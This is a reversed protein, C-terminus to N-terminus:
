ADERKVTANMAEAIARVNDRRQILDHHHGGLLAFSDDRGIRIGGLRKEWMAALRQEIPTVPPLYGSEIRCAKM